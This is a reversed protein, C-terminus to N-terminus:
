DLQNLIETTIPRKADWFVQSSYFTQSDEMDLLGRVFEAEEASGCPLFACTDDLVVPKGAHRGIVAFALKKHLGSIAVKWPAFTYEGIGFMAFRPRNRYISSARRDLAEAHRELYAWTKPAAQRIRSTDDGTTRQTVLLWRTPETVRGAAVHSGKLLPYVFEDELEVLEGLGNRFRGGVRHFEMVRACDHKVGSRWRIPSEGALHRVREYAELDAILRGDAMGIVRDPQPAPLSGYVSAQPGQVAGGISCVLLCAEVAAGFHAQADIHRLEASSVLKHKWAHVLVKRAAATKCLMALVAQRGRLLELLRILMWESIDFNSKGTLADLGSHNQFNSKRPLNSSGLSGLASNTVWPPNGIVLLPEPLGALLRPWDARYFDEHLLSRAAAHEVRGLAARAIGLHSENIDLGVANRLSPFAELAAVLFAGRGCTPELLSAPSPCRSRVADCVQRALGAPTQFDGFETRKRSAAQLLAITLETPM